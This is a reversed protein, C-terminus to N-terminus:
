IYLKIRFCDSVIASRFSAIHERCLPGGERWRRRRGSVDTDDYTRTRVLARMVAGSIGGPGTVYCVGVIHVCGRRM